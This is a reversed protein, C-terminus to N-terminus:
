KTYTHPQRRVSDNYNTDHVVVIKRKGDQVKTSVHITYQVQPLHLKQSDVGKPKLIEGGSSPFNKNFQRKTFNSSPTNFPMLHCNRTRKSKSSFHSFLFYNNGHNKRTGLMNEYTTKRQTM